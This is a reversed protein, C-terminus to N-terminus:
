SCTVTYTPSTGVKCQAVAVGNILASWVQNENQLPVAANNATFQYHIEMHGGPALPQSVKTLDFNYCCSSPTGSVTIPMGSSTLQVNQSPNSCGAVPPNDSPCVLRADNVVMSSATIMQGAGSGCLKLKVSSASIPSAGAASTIFLAGQSPDKSGGNQGLTLSLVIAASATGASGGTAVGVDTSGGTAAGTQVSTVGGTSTTISGGVNGAGGTAAPMGGTESTASTTGGTDGGIGPPAGLGGASTSCGFTILLLSSNILKMDRFVPPRRTTPLFELLRLIVAIRSMVEGAGFTVSCFVEHLWNTCSHCM